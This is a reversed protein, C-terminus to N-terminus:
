ASFLFSFFVFYNPCLQKNLVLGFKVEGLGFRVEGFWVLCCRAECLLKYRLLAYSLRAGRLVSCKKNILSRRSGGRM